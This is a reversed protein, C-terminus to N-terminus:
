SKRHNKDCSFHSQVVFTQNTSPGGRPNSVGLFMDAQKIIAAM